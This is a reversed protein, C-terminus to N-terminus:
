ILCFYCLVFDYIDCGYVFINHSANGYLHSYTIIFYSYIFYIHLKKGKNFLLILQSSLIQMALELKTPHREILFVVRRRPLKVKTEAKNTLDNLLSDVLWIVLCVDKAASVYYINFFLSSKYIIKHYIFNIIVEKILTLVIRLLSEWCCQKFTFM